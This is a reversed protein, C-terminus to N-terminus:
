IIPFHDFLAMSEYKKTFMVDRVKAFGIWTFTVNSELVYNLQYSLSEVVGVSQITSEHPGNKQHLM